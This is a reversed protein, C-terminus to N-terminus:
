NESSKGQPESQADGAEGPLYLFNCAVYLPFVVEEEQLNMVELEEDKRLFLMHYNTDKRLIARGTTDLSILRLRFAVKRQWLLSVGLGCCKNLASRHFIIRRNTYSVVLDWGFNFGSWRWSCQEDSHIQGGCRMSYEQLDSAYVEMPGLERSQEAQLLALWQKKYVPALWTAPILADHDIIHASPLDCIIYPLRLKQFVPVFPRGLDTELFLAGDSNRRHRAFWLDAASLLARRPGTWTPELQLFMWKKLTTYVNMEVEIVVLDSSAILEKMLDVSVEPLLDEDCRTMLNDLLWQRCISRINQLGYIEASYYYRCVSQATVSVKMIEQCQHILEDMQLMSATALIAIVRNPPIIITDHYLYGLVEHFSERDINEDAMQLEITNMNAERWAGSFMSDFYGSQCLYARHLNWQQGLARIQVDSGEGRLFLAEYVSRTKANAYKRRPNIALPGVPNAKRKLGGHSTTIQAEESREGEQAEAAQAEVVEEVNGVAGPEEAVHGRRFWLRSSLGGM